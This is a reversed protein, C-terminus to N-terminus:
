KKSSKKTATKKVSTKKATVTAVSKKGSFAKKFEYYLAMICIFAILASLAAVIGNIDGDSFHVFFIIAIILIITYALNKGFVAMIKDFTKSMYDGWTQIFM